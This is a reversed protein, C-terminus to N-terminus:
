LYLRYLIYAFAVSIGLFLGAFIIRSLTIKKEFFVYFGKSRAVAITVIFILVLPFLLCANYELILQVGAGTHNSKLFYEATGLLYSNGTYGTAVLAGLIGGGLALIGIGTSLFPRKRKVTIGVPPIHLIVKQPKEM